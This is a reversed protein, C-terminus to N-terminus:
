GNKKGHKKVREPLNKFDTNHWFEMATSAKMKGEKVLQKFKRAQAFSKFSM